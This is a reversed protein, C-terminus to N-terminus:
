SRLISGKVLLYERLLRLQLLLQGLLRRGLCGYSGSIILCLITEGTLRAWAAVACHDSRSRGIQISARM